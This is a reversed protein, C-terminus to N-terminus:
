RIRDLSRVLAEDKGISRIALFLLIANIFPLIAGIKVADFTLDFEKKFSFFYFAMLAYSGLYLVLSFVSLRIQFVRKKFLFIAVAVLIFSLHYITALPLSSKLSVEPNYLKYPDLFVDSSSNTFSLLDTSLIVGTFIVVLFLYLTQIRQIM